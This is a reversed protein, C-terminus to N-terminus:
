IIYYIYIINLYLLQFIQNKKLRLVHLIMGRVGSLTFFPPTLEFFIILSLIKIKKKLLIKNLTEVKIPLM